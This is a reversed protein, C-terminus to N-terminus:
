NEKLAKLVEEKNIVGERLIKIDESTLDIITSAVGGTAKGKIILDIEDGFVQEVEKSTLCPTQDAKNASPVLLPKDLHTLMELTVENDPVRIGVVGTGCSVWTPLGEKAKVLITVPGPMFKTIIKRTREDVLAYKDIDSPNGLMLTYPKNEKRQKVINLKDYAIKDDYYVGLGMVTETPFAVVGHSNLVIKLKAYKNM